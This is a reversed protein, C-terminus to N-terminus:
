NEDEKDENGQRARRAVQVKLGLDEIALRNRDRRVDDARISQSISARSEGM